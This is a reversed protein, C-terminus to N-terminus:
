GYAHRPSLARLQFESEERKHAISLTIEEEVEREAKKVKKTSISTRPLLYLFKLLARM